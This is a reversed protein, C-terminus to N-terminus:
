PMLLRGNLTLKGEVQTSALVAPGTIKSVGRYVGRPYSPADSKQFMRVSDFISGATWPLKGKLGFDFACRVFAVNIGAQFSGGLDVMPVAGDSGYAPRGTKPDRDTFRCDFFQTAQRPDASAFARVVAGAFTCRQFRFGPKSPWASWNTIGIFRCNEFVVDSSRGSDAVVGAGFNDDFVCGTFSLSDVCKGGEAEIDVGAGPSSSIRGRGTRSFECNAFRYGNGGVVSCGQRGNAICRVRDIRRPFISRKHSGDILLGDQGHDHLYLDALLESAANEFLGIGTMPIQRGTDGWEGGIRMAAINGDLELNQIVVPGRSRAVRIMFRYPSARASGDFFPMQPHFPRGSADFSGYRGGAIARLVAGSGEITVGDALDELEIIPLPEFRDSPPQAPRQCGVMYTTRSLLITGGGSRSVAHSLRAFAETDDTRGDGRAGFEEPRFIKPAAAASRTAVVFSAGLGQMIFARREIM